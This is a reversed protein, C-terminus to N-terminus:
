LYVKSESVGEHKVSLRVELEFEGRGFSLLMYERAAMRQGNCVHSDQHGCANGCVSFGSSCTSNVVHSVAQARQAMVHIADKRVVQQRSGHQQGPERVQVHGKAKGPRDELASAEIINDVYVRVDPKGVSQQSLKAAASVKRGKDHRELADKFPDAVRHSPLGSLAPRLMEPPFIADPVIEVVHGYIPKSDCGGLM